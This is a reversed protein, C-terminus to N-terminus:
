FFTEKRLNSMRNNRSDNRTNSTTRSEWVNGENSSHSKKHHSQNHRSTGSQCARDRTRDTRDEKSSALSSSSRHRSSVNASRSHLSFHKRELNDKLQQFTAQSARGAPASGEEQESVHMSHTSAHLSGSPSIKREKTNIHRKIAQQRGVEKTSFNSSVNTPSIKEQHGRNVQKTVKQGQFQPSTQKASSM